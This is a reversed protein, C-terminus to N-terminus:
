AYRNALDLVEKVYWWAHNYSFVAQDIGTAGRGAGAACLYRAASFVADTPDDINAKGDGDADIGYLAWTSPEFQMPGEAGAVSRHVNSGNGTEVTGIGALVTWPLGPCTPAARRYLELYSAPIVSLAYSSAESQDVELPRTVHVRASGGFITKVDARLDDLSVNPADVLVERNAPLGLSKAQTASVMADVSPLAITAFAGVRLPVPVAGGVAAQLTAGLEHRLPRSSTYAVTLEGEAVSRWLPNSVATLKPTFGRINSLPVGAVQIRHGSLSLDGRALSAVHHVGSTRRLRRLQRPTASHRLDVAVDPPTLGHLKPVVPATTGGNAIDTGAQASTSAPSASGTGATSSGGSGGPSSGATVAAAGPQHHAALVVGVVGASALTGATLLAAIVVRRRSTVDL